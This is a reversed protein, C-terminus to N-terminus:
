TLTVRQRDYAVEDKAHAPHKRMDGSNIRSRTNLKELKRGVFLSRCKQGYLAEFTPRIALTIDLQKYLCRSICINVWGKGFRIAVLVCCLGRYNLTRESLCVRRNHITDVTSMDLNTGLAESTVEMELMQHSDQTVIAFSEVTDWADHGGGKPVIKCKDLSRDRGDHSSASKPEYWGDQHGKHEARVTRLDGYCPVLEEMSACPKWGLRPKWSQERIAEWVRRQLECYTFDESGETLCPNTCRRYYGVLGLNVFRRQSKTSAWDKISEIKASGVHFEKLEDHDMVCMRKDFWVCLKFDIVMVTESPMKSIDEERVEIPSLRSRLEIKSLCEFDRSQDITWLIMSTYREFCLEGPSFQCKYLWQRIAGETSLFEENPLAGISLNGTNLFIKFRHSVELANKGSKDEIVIVLEPIGGCNRGCVGECARDMGAQNGRNGQQKEAMSMGKQLAMAMEFAEQMTKPKSAVINGHNMDAFGGVFRDSLNWLEVEVEENRKTSVMNSCVGEHGQFVSTESGHYDASCVASAVM